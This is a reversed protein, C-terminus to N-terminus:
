SNVQDFIAARDINDTKEFQNDNELNSEDKLTFDKSNDIVIVKCSGDTGGTSSYDLSYYTCNKNM